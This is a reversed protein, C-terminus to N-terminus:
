LDLSAAARKSILHVAANASSFAGHFSDRFSFTELDRVMQMLIDGVDLQEELLCRYYVRACRESIEANPPEPCFEDDLWKLLSERLWESESAAAEPRSWQKPVRLASIGSGEADEFANMSSRTKVTSARPRPASFYQQLSSIMAGRQKHIGYGSHIGVLVEAQTRVPYSAGFKRAISRFHEGGNHIPYGAAECPKPFTCASGLYLMSEM